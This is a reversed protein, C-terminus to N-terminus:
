HEPPLVKKWINPVQSKISNKGRHGYLYQSVSVSQNKLLPKSNWITRWHTNTVSVSCEKQWKM